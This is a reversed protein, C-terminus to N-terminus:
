DSTDIAADPTADPGADRVVPAGADTSGANPPVGADGGGGGPEQGDLLLREELRFTVDIDASPCSDSVIASGGNAGAPDGHVSCKVSAHTTADVGSARRFGSIISTASFSQFSLTGDTESIVYSIKSVDTPVGTTAATILTKADVGFVTQAPDGEISYLELRLDFARSGLDVSGVYSERVVRQSQRHPIPVLDLLPVNIMRLTGGNQDREELNGNNSIGDGAYGKIIGDPNFVLDLVWQRFEDVDAQTIQLPSQFKFWNGGNGLLVVAKEAPSQALSTSAKTYYHLYNDVGITETQVPGDHTYLFSGDGLPITASVKVPLSWTIIGYNYSGVHESSLVTSRSLGNRASEDMLDVFGASTGRARDALVTWDGNVDYSFSPEDNRLLELCGGPNNFGSGLPELTECIQISTIYYELSHLQARPAGGGSFALLRQASAPAGEARAVRMEISAQRVNGSGDGAQGQGGTGGSAEGAFGATGNSGARGGGGVNPGSDSSSNCAAWVLASLCCVPLAFSRSLGLMHAVSRVPM